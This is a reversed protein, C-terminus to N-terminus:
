TWVAGEVAAAAPRARVVMSVGHRPRLTLRPQPVVQQGAVLAVDYAQVVQAVILQAEMMALPAGLCARPGAAFPFYAGPARAAAREAGFRDPDFQEPEAWVAPHRHTLYPSLFVTTGAPIPYGGIVDAARAARAIMWAPPYLRMAEELVMRTYPLHPLDAVTPMRGALVATVDRWLREAVEPHCALLYWTWTLALATTEHGAFLLTMVEDRLQQPAMGEGTAPDRAALLLALLDGQDGEQQRRAQIHHWVLHDLRALAAQFQRRGPTPLWASWPTLTLMHTRLYGTVTTFDTFMTRGVAEPLATGFLARVIVEGTVRTMEALMDLATGAAAHAAWRALMAQTATTITGALAALRERHFAPQVLRRQMRWLAGDSTALGQGLLPRVQASFRSKGYNPAHEQLVYTVHEPHCLLYVRVPGFPLTVIDGYTRVMASLFGLSDRRMQPLVGLWPYGRPGPPLTRPRARRFTPWCTIM